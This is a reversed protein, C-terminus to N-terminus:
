CYSKFGREIDDIEGRVTIFHSMAVFIVIGCSDEVNVGSVLGSRADAGITSHQIESFYYTETSEFHFIYLSVSAVVM